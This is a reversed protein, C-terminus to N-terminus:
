LGASPAKLIPEIGFVAEFFVGAERLAWKELDINGAAEDAKIILRSGSLKIDVSSIKQKRSRDLADAIRLIAALKSVLVKKSAKLDRYNDDEMNPVAQSHYLAISAVIDIEETTLGAIESGKILAYSHIHSNEGNVFKGCAYLVAALQLLLKDRRSMGHVKKMRDFIKNCYSMVASYHGEDINYKAAIKKASELINKNFRKNIASFEAAEFYEFALAQGLSISPTIIEEATTYELLISYLCMAPLLTESKTQEIKYQGSIIGISKFKIEEYFETFNRREITYVMGQPKGKCLSAVLDAENGSIIINDIEEEPLHFKLEDTYTRLYEEIMLYFELSGDHVKEFLESIRLAGVKISQMLVTNEGGSYALGVSGAGIHAMLTSKGKLEDKLIHDLMKFIYLKEASEDMIKVRLGTKISIQDLIYDKNSAERIATTAVAKVTGTGYDGAAQIFGTLIECLKNVKEFGIMGTGFTDKALNLPYKLTELFNIAGDAKEAIYMRVENSSIDIIAAAGHREAM